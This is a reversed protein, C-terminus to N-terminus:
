FRYSLGAFPWVAMQGSEEEDALPKGGREILYRIRFQLRLTVALADTVAVDGGLGVLWAVTRSGVFLGDTEGDVNPLDVRVDDHRLILPAWGLEAFLPGVRGRVLLVTWMEWASGEVVSSELATGDSGPREFTARRVKDVNFHFLLGVELHPFAAYTASLQTALGMDQTLKDDRNPGEVQQELVRPFLACELRWSPATKGGDAAMAPAAMFILPILVILLARM